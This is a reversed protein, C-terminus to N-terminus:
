GINCVFLIKPLFIKKYVKSDWENIAELLCVPFM